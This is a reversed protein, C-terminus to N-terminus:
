VDGLANHKDEIWRYMSHSFPQLKRRLGMATMGVFCVTHFGKPLVINPAEVYGRRPQLVKLGM